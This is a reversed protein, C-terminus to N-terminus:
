LSKSRRQVDKLEQIVRTIIQEETYPMILKFDRKCFKGNILVSEVQQPGASYALYSSLRDESFPQMSLASQPNLIIADAKMGIRINGIEHERNLSKAPITTVM